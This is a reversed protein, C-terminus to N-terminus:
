GSVYRQHAANMEAQFIKKQVPDTCTEYQHQYYFFEDMLERMREDRDVYAVEEDRKQWM